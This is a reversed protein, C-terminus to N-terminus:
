IRGFRNVWISEGKKEWKVRNYAQAQRVSAMLLNEHKYVMKFKWRASFFKIVKKWLSLDLSTNPQLIIEELVKEALNKEYKWRPLWAADAGMFYLIIANLCCLFEFYGAEKSKNEVFNWNIYKYNAKVFCFWDCIQRLSAEGHVFHEALHLPIFLANTEISPFYVTINGNEVFHFSYSIANKSDNEFFKELTQLSPHCEDNVFVAHNEVSLGEYLFTSHKDENQKTIIGKEEKLCEDAKGGYGFHYVDIDGPPRHIPKSYNLSLGYGKLLMTKIGHKQYFLLLKILKKQYLLYQREIAVTQACMQLRIQRDVGACSKDKGHEHLCQLGDVVIATVGHKTALERLANWDFEQIVKEETCENLGLQILYLLVETNKDLM